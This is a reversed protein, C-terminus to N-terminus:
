RSCRHRPRFSRSRASRASPALWAQADAWSLDSPLDDVVWLYPPGASLLAGLAERVQRPDLEATPLGRVFALDLVQAELQAKRDAATMVSEVDHGFARLWVVGGPYAAAFRIAYTEALLSKGAGGIGILRVLPRSQVNTIVPVDSAWLGSHIAWLEALRGFFRNSGDGAAAGFWAPTAEAAIEALVGPARELGSVVARALSALEAPDRPARRYLADRLEVPQIHGDAAEPNVVMVRRRPDGELQGRVFAWTLEWQCALSQPYAQSYWAVLARSQALGREISGQIGEFTEIASADFWVRLGCARLAEM